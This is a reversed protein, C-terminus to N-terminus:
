SPPPAGVALLDTTGSAPEPWKGSVEGSGQSISGWKVFKSLIVSSAPNSDLNKLFFKGGSFLCYSLWLSLFIYFFTAMAVSHLKERLLVERRIYM